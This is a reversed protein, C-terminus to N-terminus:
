GCYMRRTRPSFISMKQIRYLEQGYITQYLYAQNMNLNSISHHGYSVSLDGEKESKLVGTNTNPNTDDGGDRADLALQHLTLLAVALNYREKYACQSIQLKSLEIYDDKMSKAALTANKATIIQDITLAM